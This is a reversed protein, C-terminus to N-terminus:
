SPSDFNEFDEFKEESHFKEIKIQCKKHDSTILLFVNLFDPIPQLGGLVNFYSFQMKGKELAHIHLSETLILYCRTTTAWM